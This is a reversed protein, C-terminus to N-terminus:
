QRTENDSNSFTRPLPLGLCEARPKAPKPMVALAPVKQHLWVDPLSITLFEKITKEDMPLLSM